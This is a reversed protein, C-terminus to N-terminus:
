SVADVYEAEVQAAVVGEEWLEVFAEIAVAIRRESSRRWSSRLHQQAAFRRRSWNYVERRYSDGIWKGGGKLQPTNNFVLYDV